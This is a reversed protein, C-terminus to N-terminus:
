GVKDMVILGLVLPLYIISVLFLSRANERRLGRAFRVSFWLFMMGLVLAGLLYVPGAVRFVFPCLSVALLGLAHSVAQHGTRGGDTDTVALMKFGARAYDERYLWSIALFHPIQWFFQIAFLAWGGGSIEGTAAAWGMVPPIAGPIAGVVTNLSTVQKLPTYVVVYLLLTAAGLLGSLANVVLGLYSVGLVSCVIGFGLVTRPQLRGSPLPRDQTRKMLADLDREIWQNLASAGSALLATGLLTHFLLVFDLRGRSGAYFGVMATLLVLMTLRAKVLQSFVSIWSQEATAPEDISSASAKM